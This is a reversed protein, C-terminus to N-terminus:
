EVRVDDIRVKTTNASETGEYMFAVNVESGFGTLDIVGSDVWNFNGDSEQALTAGLPQWTATTVDGNFDNSVWASLGDHQYFAIASKFSITPTESTVITPTVLWNETEPNSDQFAETEAFGNNDFSRKIWIRDGKTAVNTWGPLFINDFDSLGEFEEFFAGGNGGTQGCRTDNMNVDNVDRLYMQLTGSFIQLVGTLTGKGTPTNNDAFDAFGSTRLVITNGDCDELTHNVSFQNDADAYPMSASSASFQIDNFQILTNLDSLSINDITKVAPTVADFTNGRIIINSVQSSPIRKVNSTSNTYCLQPLGNYDSICLERLSVFVEQGPPYTEYLDFEDVLIAIGGTADQVVLSKFFNGAEDNSIVTARLFKDDLPTEVGPVYSDFMEAVTIIDEEDIIVENPNCRDGNFQVEEVDRLLLQKDSGFIGYIATITGNGDPVVRTAFDSFGSSRLIVSNGDCDELTHNISVLNDADAYTDGLANEAFQTNELQILTNLRDSTLQDLTILEPEFDNNSTGPLVVEEIKVAPIRGLSLRGDDDFPTFGIQPLGNFDSIWLDSLNIFLRRGVYYKNWLEVDDLLITLGATEDQIVISRFFNGSRDDAVVVVKLYKDMALEVFDGPVALDKISQITVVESEDIIPDEGDIPPTDFDRDICSGLFVLALFLGFFKINRM